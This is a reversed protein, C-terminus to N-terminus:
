RTEGFAVAPPPTSGLADPQLAAFVGYGTALALIPILVIWWILHLRRLPRKM